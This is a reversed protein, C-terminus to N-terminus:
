QNQVITIVENRQKRYNNIEVIPKDSPYSAIEHKKLSLNIIEHMMRNGRSEKNLEKRLTTTLSGSSFLINLWRKELGYNMSELNQDNEVLGVKGSDEEKRYLVFPKFFSHEEFLSPDFIMNGHIILINENTTANLGLRLSEASNTEEYKQNEVFRVRNHLRKVIKSSEFGVVPIIECKEFIKRITDIQYDLLLSNNVDILCVSGQSKSRTEVGASLLIITMDKVRKLSKNRKIIHRM